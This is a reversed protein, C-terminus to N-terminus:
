MKPRDDNQIRNKASKGSMQNAMKVLHWIGGTMGLIAGIIAFVVKTGLKHDLLVGLVIPVVMEAAIATAESGLGM